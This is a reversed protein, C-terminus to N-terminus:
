KVKAFSGFTENVTEVFAFTDDYKKLISRFDVLQRKNVVCVIVTRDGNSYVGKASLKTAGHHLKKIIEADIEEAHTTVIFFKYASKSGKIIANGVYSSLFCYLMCLCVPKYNYIVEGGEGTETYVFYSAFAIAANIAFNIWFFNLMPARLSVYKAIIDAGGTSSNRRFAVGYVFGGIAGAILAPFITDVGQADYQFDSLDVVGLILVFLSYAVSFISTKIAFDRSIFFFSFICLPVNIILTFYGVSFGAKYEIMTAIGNIGAPAFQNKIIFLEYNFAFLLALGVMILCDLLLMRLKRKDFKPKDMFAM